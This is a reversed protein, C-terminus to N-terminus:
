PTLSTKKVNGTGTELESINSSAGWDAVCLADVAKVLDYIQLDM